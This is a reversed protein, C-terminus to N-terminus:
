QLSYPALEFDRLLRAVCEDPQTMFLIFGLFAEAVQTLLSKLFLIM